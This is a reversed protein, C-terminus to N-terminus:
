LGPGFNNIKYQNLDGDNIKTKKGKKWYPSRICESNQSFFTILELSRNLLSNAICFKLIKDYCSVCKHEYSFLM